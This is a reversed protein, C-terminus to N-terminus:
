KRYIVKATQMLTDNVYLSVFYFGEEVGAEPRWTYSYEGYGNVTSYSHLTRGAIDSVVIRVNHDGDKGIVYPVNLEVSFPNPYPLRMQMGEVVGIGTKNGDIAIVNGGTANSFVVERVMGDGVKLLAHKGAALSKGTMSFALFLYENDNQWNGVQEYGTLADLATFETGKDASIKVQVGGLAVPTEVYLIGDEVSYTATSSISAIASEQPSVIINVTGVVDLINVDNDSNVDAADFIFPQPDQNTLWAVETVVDAVDVAMSGNADGKQATMPTAAVVNSLAHSNLSTTLQKITYYYTIGPEVNYDVFQTEESELVTENAIITDGSYVWQGLWNGHEDWEVYTSDIIDTYRIINYGLLDEFDEEDTEWTLTVKGLGAEAMLGTAMSGAAAVEVNFRVNEVPIDFYENDRAGAVYIRNLGDNGSKGDITIYATYILSDASWSGDEGVVVQTYPPRVGMAINPAVSVDMPRNFYVEFKHKGVGLPPLLEFEDQADYGNVVVKWVIGHAEASPRTLMSSLDYAGVGYPEKYYLDVVGKSAISTKSTGLYIPFSLKYPVGSSFTFNNTERPTFNSLVNNGKIHSQLVSDFNLHLEEYIQHTDNHMQVYFTHGNYGTSNNAINFNKLNTRHISNKSYIVFNTSVYAIHADFKNNFINVREGSPCPSTYIICNEIICDKCYSNVLRASLSENLGNFYVYKLTDTCTENVITSIGSFSANSNDARTFTIISDPTGHCILRGKQATSIGTLNKFKLVTGPKITLTVGDLVAIPKTVIYHVNPYLTMDEAIMGGIEVGNEATITFDHVMEEEADDCTARLRLKIHRGDVCKENIKFRLPTASRAKAYSDLTKGFTIEGDIIEVIEPDENEGLELSFRVNQAEGWTTRLTPFLGVTEGADAKGDGDGQLTIVDNSVYEEIVTAPQFKVSNRNYNQYYLQVNAGNQLALAYSDTGFPRIEYGGLSSRSEVIDFKSVNKPSLSAYAQEEYEARNVFLTYGLRNTLTYGTAKGGTIKWLDADGSNAAGAAIQAGSISSTFKKDESKFSICYWYEEKDNSVKFPEGALKTSDIYYGAELDDNMLYTVFQLQPVRDEDKINYAALIDINGNATNILDGFLLEKNVYEKSQMMRSIAGAVLPCAMSTGNLSKYKGGPYTSMINVGPATLEYNYLKEEGFLSFVAGDDDYNSFSARTGTADSSAQVGLVFTFAAPYMPKGPLKCVECRIDNIPLCDNGAAAVLVATQYARALAQEEAISYGYSGISMSIIDAGNAAAYDIGKIITAVDGTGDSQMVTVPMILADPNAGAIGISNNGVAAAIGACHTGHGNWDGLRATQNVFDWGHLDDAYGNNDDDEEEAGDAEATNTWINAALDPHTIDVGTDLIAIVPRKGSTKPKKWLSPLNIAGLGWQMSYLPESAYAEAEEDEVALTYLIYNPEAYEVEDLNKLEDIANYVSNGEKEEFRLRYLQSMDDSEVTAGNHAKKRKVGGPGTLPMLQEIEKAGIKKLVSNMDGAETEVGRAGARSKIKVRSNNKFKVIVEGQRFARGKHSDVTSVKQEQSQPLAFAIACISTLVLASIARKFLNKM